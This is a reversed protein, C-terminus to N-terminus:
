RLHRGLFGILTLVALNRQAEPWGGFDHGGDVLLLSESAGVARLAAHLAEAHMPPVIADDRGQLSLVPPVDRRVWTLPSADGYVAAARDESGVLAAILQRSDLGCAQRLAADGAPQSLTYSLHTPGALNVVARIRVGPPPPARFAALLALHGGASGGVLAVRQPDLGRGPGEAAIWRLAAAIDDVQAPHTAEGSLRYEVAIGAFGAGALTHMAAHMDAPRGTRWGGGHIWVLTPAPAAGAAPCLDLHLDRTGVRQYVLGPVIVPTGEGAALLVSLLLLPLLPM